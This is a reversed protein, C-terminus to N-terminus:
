DSLCLTLMSRTCSSASWNWTLPITETRVHTWWNFLTLSWRAIVSVLNVLTKSIRTTKNSTIGVSTLIAARDIWLMLLLKVSALVNILTEVWIRTSRYRLLNNFISIGYRGDVLCSLNYFIASDTSDLLLLHLSSLLFWGATTSSYYCIRCVHRSRAHTFM